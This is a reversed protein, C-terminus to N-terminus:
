KKLLKKLKDVRAQYWQFKAAAHLKAGPDVAKEAENRWKRVGRKSSDLETPWNVPDTSIGLDDESEPLRKNELYYNRDSYIKECVKDLELVRLAMRRAEPEMAPDKEAKRSVDGVRNQLDILEAYLPKWQDYLAQEVEDRTESWRTQPKVPKASKDPNEKVTKDVSPTKQVTTEIKTVTTVTKPVCALLAQLAGQLKKNKFDSYGEATFLQKLKPDSGRVLYLKVGSAYDRSGNLWNRIDDM